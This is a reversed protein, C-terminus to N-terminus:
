GSRFTRPTRGTAARVVRALHAADSFGSEAAVSAVTRDTHQLLHLARELRLHRLYDRPTRGMAAAFVETFRDPSLFVAAAVQEVRLSGAFREEMIRIATAVTSEHGGRPGEGAARARERALFVLLRLFLARTLLAGEDTGAQWEARLEELMAAVADGAGPTLHLWRGEPDGGAEALVLARFGPVRALVERTAADFVEPQFHITDFTLDCDDFRHAMGPGMVYVDGRAVAYAAADIIHRGRGRRAVYLSFFDRHHNVTRAAEGALVDTRVVLPLGRQAATGPFAAAVSAFDHSLYPPDVAQAVDM